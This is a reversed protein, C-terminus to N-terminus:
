TPFFDWENLSQNFKQCYSFTENMNTVYSVDWGGVNGKFHTIGKFLGEFNSIKSVDWSCIPAFQSSDKCYAEIAKRLEERTEPIYV